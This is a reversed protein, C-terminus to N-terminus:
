QAYNLGEFKFGSDEIVKKVQEMTLKQGKNFNLRVEMKDLDVTTKKVEKFKSFKKEIGQACIACVMGKAKILVMEPDEKIIRAEKELSNKHNHKHGKHVTKSKGYAQSFQFEKQNFNGQMFFFCCVFLILLNM